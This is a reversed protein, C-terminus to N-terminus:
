KPEGIWVAKTCEKNEIWFSFVENNFLNLLKIREQSTSPLVYTIEYAHKIWMFSFAYEFDKLFEELAFSYDEAPIRLLKFSPNEILLEAKKLEKYVPLRPLCIILSYKQAILANIITSYSIEKMEILLEPIINTEYMLTFENEFRDELAMIEIKSHITQM